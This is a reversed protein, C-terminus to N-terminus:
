PVAHQTLFQQRQEPTMVFRQTPTRLPERTIEVRAGVGVTKFLAVVDRSRMRICGYSAPQGIKREEATGHIYITRAYARRNQAELGKLWLIRTVIPDRGPADIPVIEGTPRRDKFKMGIPAGGGIKQAVELRGLPTACSGPRDGLGFKSTSVDYTAIPVGKRLVVMEQDAVSVRVTHVRDRACGGFFLFVGVLAGCCYFRFNVRDVKFRVDRPAVM